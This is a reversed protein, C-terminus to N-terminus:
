RRQQEGVGCMGESPPEFLIKVDGISQGKEFVLFVPPFPASHDRIVFDTAPAISKCCCGPWSDVGM